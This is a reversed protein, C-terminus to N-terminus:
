HNRYMNAPLLLFTVKAWNAFGNFNDYNPNYFCFNEALERRVILEEVFAEFDTKHIAKYSQAALVVRAASLQGFHLYPSLNSQGDLSPDNDLPDKGGKEGALGAFDSKTQPLSAPQVNLGPIIGKMDDYSRSPRRGATITAMSDERDRASGLADGGGGGVGVGRPSTPNPIKMPMSGRRSYRASSPGASGPSAGIYLTDVDDQGGGGTGGNNGESDYHYHQRTFAVPSTENDVRHYYDDDFEDDRFSGVDSRMSHRYSGYHDFSGGGFTHQSANDPLPPDFEVDTDFDAQEPEEPDIESDGTSLDSPSNPSTTGHPPPSSSSAKANNASSVASGALAPPYVNAPLSPRRSGDNMARM